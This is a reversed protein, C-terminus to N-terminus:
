RGPFSGSAGAVGQRVLPSGPCATRVTTAARDPNATPVLSPRDVFADTANSTVLSRVRCGPLPGMIVNGQLTAAAMVRDM